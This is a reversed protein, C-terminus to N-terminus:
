DRAVVPGDDLTRDLDMEEMGLAIGFARIVGAEEPGMPGDRRALIVAQKVFEQRITDPASAGAMRFPSRTGVLDAFARPTVHSFLLAESDVRPHGTLNSAAQRLADLEDGNVEGDARAVTLLAGLFTHALEEPLLLAM